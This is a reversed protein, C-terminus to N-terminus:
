MLSFLPPILLMKAVQLALLAAMPSLDLGGILPVWRQFPALVPETIKYLLSAVPNYTGPNIWSLIVTVFISFIFVNLVSNILETLSWIFVPWLPIAGEGSVMLFGVLMQLVLMLVVASLNIGKVTPFVPKMITLPVRTIKIIFSSVPNRSDAGSFQLLVRVILVIVYAGALSSLIFVLPDSLYGAPM